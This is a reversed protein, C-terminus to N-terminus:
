RVVAEDRLLFEVLLTAFLIVALVMAMATPLRGDVKPQASEPQMFELSRQWFQRTPLAIFVLGALGLLFGNINAATDDGAMLLGSLSALLVASRFWRAVTRESALPTKVDVFLKKDPQEAAPRPFCLWGRQKADAAQAAPQKAAEAASVKPKPKQPPMATSASSSAEEAKGTRRRGPLQFGSASTSPLRESPIWPPPPVALQRHFLATGHLAVSFGSIPRLDLDRLGELLASAAADPLRVRLVAGPFEEETHKGGAALCWERGAASAEDRFILEEDVTVAEVAGASSEVVYSYRLFSASVSPRLGGDKIAALGAELASQQQQVDQPSVGGKAAVAAADLTGALLSPMERHPLQAESVERREDEVTLSVESERDGEIVWSCQLLKTPPRGQDTALNRRYREAYQDGQASDFFVQSVKRHFDYSFNGTSRTTSTTPIRVQRAAPALRKLLAVKTLMSSGTPVFFSKAPGTGEAQQWPVGQQGHRKRWAAYLQGLQALLADFHLTRFPAGEVRSAFWVCSATEEQEGCKRVIGMLAEYTLSAYSHLQVVAQALNELTEFNDAVDKRLQKKLETSLVEWQVMAVDNVKDLEGRLRSLAADPDKSEVAAQLGDYDLFVFHPQAERLAALEELVGM